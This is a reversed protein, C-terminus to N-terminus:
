KNYYGEAFKDAKSKIPMGEQVKIAEEIDEYVVELPAELKLEVAIEGLKVMDPDKDMCISYRIHAVNGKHVGHPYADRQLEIMYNKIVKMYM